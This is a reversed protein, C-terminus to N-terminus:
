VRVDECLRRTFRSMPFTTYEHIIWLSLAIGSVRTRVLVIGSSSPLTSYRRLSLVPVSVCFSITPPPYSHDLAQPWNQPSPPHPTAQQMIFGERDLVRVEVRLHEPLKVQPRHRVALVGHRLYTHAPPAGRGEGVNHTHLFPMHVNCISQQNGIGEGVGLYGYLESM